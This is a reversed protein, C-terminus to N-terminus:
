LMTKTFLRGREPLCDDVGALRLLHWALAHNSSTVPVGLQNEATALIGAVRLSTCAVFVGDCDSDAVLEQMADMISAPTIRGVLFDDTQQFSGMAAIIFGSAVLNQRMQETVTPSYPTLFAIRHMGLAKFAAKCATLPNTVPLSESHMCRVLRSVDQEGILTAGSTCAYAIADFSFAKPLLKAASPLEEAMAQLSAPTVEMANAIRSHYWDVGPVDLLTRLEHELTQDTQLVVVGLRARQGLGADTTCALSLLPTASNKSQPM